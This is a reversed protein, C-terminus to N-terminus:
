RRQQDRATIFSFQVLKDARQLLPMLLFVGQDPGDIKGLDVGSVRVDDNMGRREAHRALRRFQRQGVREELFVMGHEVDDIGRGASRQEQMGGGAPGFGDGPVQHEEVLRRELEFEEGRM